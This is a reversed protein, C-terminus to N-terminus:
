LTRKFSEVFKKKFKLTRTLEMSIKLLVDCQSAIFWHNLVM